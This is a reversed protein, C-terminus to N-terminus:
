APAKGRAAEIREDDAQPIRGVRGNGV